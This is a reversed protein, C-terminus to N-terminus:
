VTTLGSWTKGKGEWFSCGMLGHSPSIEWLLGDRIGPGPKLGSIAAASGPLKPVGARLGRSGKALETSGLSQSGPPGACGVSLQLRLAGPVGEGARSQSVSGVCTLYFSFLERSLSLSLLPGTPHSFAM